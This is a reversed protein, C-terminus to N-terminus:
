ASAGIRSDVDAGAPFVTITEVEDLGFGPSWEDEDLLYVVADELSFFRMRDYDIRGQRIVADRGRRPKLTFRVKRRSQRLLFRRFRSFDPSHMTVARFRPGPLATRKRLVYLQQPFETNLVNEPIATNLIEFGIESALRSDILLNTYGSLVFCGGEPLAEYVKRALQFADAPTMVNNNLAGIATVIRPRLGLVEEISEMRLVDEQYVRDGRGTLRKEAEFVSSGDGEILHFSVRDRITRPLIADLLELFNGEGGLLDLIPLSDEGGSLFPDYLLLSLVADAVAPHIRTRYLVADRASSAASRGAWYDSSRPAALGTRAYDVEIENGNLWRMAEEIRRVIDRQSRPIEVAMRLAPICVVDHTLPRYLGRFLRIEGIEPVFRSFDLITGRFHNVVEGLLVPDTVPSLARLESVLAEIGARVFESRGESLDPHVPPIAAGNLAGEAVRPSAADV